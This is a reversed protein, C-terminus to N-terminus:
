NEDEENEDPNIKIKNLIDIFYETQISDQTIGDKIIFIDKRKEEIDLNIKDVCNNYITTCSSLLLLSSSLFLFRVFLSIKNYKSLYM